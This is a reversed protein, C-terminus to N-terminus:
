DLQSFWLTLAPPILFLKILVTSLIVAWIGAGHALVTSTFLIAPMFFIIPYVDGAALAFRLALTSFVLASAVVYHAWFPLDHLSQAITFWGPFEKMRRRDVLNLQPAALANLSM